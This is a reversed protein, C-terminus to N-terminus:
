QTTARVVRIQIDEQIGTAKLVKTTKAAAARASIAPHKAKQAHSRCPLDTKQSAGPM